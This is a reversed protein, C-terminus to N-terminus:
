ICWLHDGPDLDLSCTFAMLAEKMWSSGVLTQKKTRDLLLVHLIFIGIGHKSQLYVNILHRHNVVKHKIMNVAVEPNCPTSYGLAAAM